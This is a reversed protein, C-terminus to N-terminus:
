CSSSRCAKRTREWLEKKEKRRGLESYVFFCILVCIQHSFLLEFCYFSNTSSNVSAKAPSVNSSDDGFAACLSGSNSESVQKAKRQMTEQASDVLLSSRTIVPFENQCKLLTVCPFSPLSSPTTNEPLQFHYGWVNEVSFETENFGEFMSETVNSFQNTVEMNLGREESAKSSKFHQLDQRFETM